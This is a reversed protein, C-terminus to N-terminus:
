YTPIESVNFTYIGVFIMLIVQLLAIFGYTIM